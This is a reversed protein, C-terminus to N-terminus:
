VLEKQIALWEPIVLYILEGEQKTDPDDSGDFLQSKPIWIDQQNYESVVTGKQPGEGSRQILIALDTQRIFVADDIEVEPAFTDNEPFRSM